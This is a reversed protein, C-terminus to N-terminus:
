LTLKLFKLIEWYFCISLISLIILFVSIIINLWFYSDFKSKIDNFEKRNPLDSELAINEIEKYNKEFQEEVLEVKYKYFKLYYFNNIIIFAIYGSIILAYVKRNQYNKLNIAAAIITGLTTLFNKNMSDIIAQISNLVEEQNKKAKEKIKNIQEFYSKVDNRIYIKYMEKTAKYIRGSLRLFEEYSDTEKESNMYVSILERIMEIKEKNKNEEYAWKYLEFVKNGEFFIPEDIEIDIRKKSVIKSKIKNREGPKTSNFLFITALLSKLGEFYEKLESFEFDDKYKFDFFKPTIKNIVEDCYCNEELIKLEREIEETEDCQISEEFNINSISINRNKLKLDGELLYVILKRNMLFFNNEIEKLTLNKIKSMLKNENAFIKILVDQYEPKSIKFKLIYEAGPDINNKIKDSNEPYDYGDVEVKIDKDYNIINGLKVFDDEIHTDKRSIEITFIDRNDDIDYSKDTSLSFESIIKRVIKKM